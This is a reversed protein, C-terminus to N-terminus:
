VDSAVESYKMRRLIEAGCLSEETILWMPVRGKDRVRNFIAQQIAGYEALLEANPFSRYNKQM